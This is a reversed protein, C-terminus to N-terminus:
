LYWQDLAITSMKKKASTRPQLSSSSASLRRMAWWLAKSEAGRVGNLWGRKRAATFSVAQM